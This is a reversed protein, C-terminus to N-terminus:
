SNQPAAVSATAIFQGSCEQNPLHSSDRRLVIALRGAPERFGAVFSGPPRECGTEPQNVRLLERYRAIRGIRLDHAPQQM